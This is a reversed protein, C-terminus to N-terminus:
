AAVMKKATAPLVGLQRMVGLVDWQDQEEVIKGDAIRSITIGSTEIKKGTPAIGMFEGKHTAVLSWRTVVTDGEAIQEEITWHPDSFAASSGFCSAFYAKYAEGKLEGTLPSRYICNRYVDDFLSFDRRNCREVTQRILNKNDETM